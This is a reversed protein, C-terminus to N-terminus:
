KEELSAKYYECNENVGLFLSGVVHQGEGEM